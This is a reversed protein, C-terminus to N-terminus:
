RYLRREKVVVDEIEVFLIMVIVTMLLGTWVRARRSRYLGGKEQV